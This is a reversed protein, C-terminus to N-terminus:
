DTGDADEQTKKLLGKFLEVDKRHPNLRFSNLVERESEASWFIKLDKKTRTIATYFTNQDVKEEADPSIVIKVSEYELGQAKYISTAYAIQFPVLTYKTRNDDDDSEEDWVDVSFEVVSRGNESSLLSLRAEDEIELENITKEVRIRFRISRTDAEVNLIKGKLNNFLLDGFRANEIFLIPDNKKYVAHQWEIPKEPNSAQLISNLNNVGYIGNYTLCLTIEDDRFKKYIDESINVSYHNRQLIPGIEDSCNRVAEWLDVLGKEQTRFRNTLEHIVDKSFLFKVLLFWNGFGIAELQYIDGAFLMADAKVNKLLSVLAINEVISCEDVILLRCTKPAGKKLQAITYFRSGTGEGCLRKLHDLSSKTNSTIIKDVHRFLECIMSLLTSKGTGAPGFVFGINKKVFLTDIARIKEEDDKKTTPLGDLYAQATEGYGIIGSGFVSRLQEVITKAYEFNGSIYYHGAFEKIAMQSIAKENFREMLDKPNQFSDLEKSSIFINNNVLSNNRIARAFLEEESENQDFCETLDLLSPNHGILSAFFPNKEFPYVGKSLFFSSMLCDNEDRPMQKKILINRMELALYVATRWGIERQAVLKRAKMVIRRLPDPEEGLVPAVKRFDADEMLLIDAMTSGTEQIYKMLKRYPSSSRRFATNVGLIKAFHNLECPRISVQCGKMFLIRIPKGFLEITSTFFSAKIPYFRLIREETYVTFRNFKDVHDNAPVLVVEFLPRGFGQITRISEIYYASEDTTFIFNKDREFAECVRRYFDASTTDLNLPYQSLNNLINIEFQAKEFERIESLPELYHMLLRSGDEVKTIYHSNTKQLLAYFRRLFQYQGKQKIYKSAHNHIMEYEGAPGVFDKNEDHCYVQLFVHEVFSRLLSLINASAVDRPLGNKVIAKINEDIM